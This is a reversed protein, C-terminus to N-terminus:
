TVPNNQHQLCLFSNFSIRPVIYFLDMQIKRMVAYISYYRTRMIFESYDSEIIELQSKISGMFKFLHRLPESPVRFELENGTLGLCFKTHFGCPGDYMVIQEKEVFIEFDSSYLTKLAKPDISVANAGKALVKRLYRMDEEQVLYDLVSNILFMHYLYDLHMGFPRNEEISRNRESILDFTVEVSPRPVMGLPETHVVNIWKSRVKKCVLNKTVMINVEELNCEFEYLVISSLPIITTYMGKRDINPMRYPITMTQIIIMDRRFSVVVCNHTRFHCKFIKIIDFKFHATIHGEFEMKM